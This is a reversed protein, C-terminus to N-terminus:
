MAGLKARFADELLHPQFILDLEQHDLVADQDPGGARRAGPPRPGGAQRVLAAVIARWLTRSASWSINASHAFRWSLM